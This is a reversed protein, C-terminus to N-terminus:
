KVTFPILIEHHQPQKTSDVGYLVIETIPFRWNINDIKHEIYSVDNKLSPEDKLSNVRAVTMHPHFPPNNDASYYQSLKDTIDRNFDVFAPPYVIDLFVIGGRPDNKTFYDFGNVALVLNKLISMRTQIVSAITPFGDQSQKDLYYVTIHPTKPYTIEWNPHLKGVNDLLREFKRQYKKPLPVGIFCSTYQKM